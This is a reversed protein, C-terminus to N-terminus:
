PREEDWEDRMENIYQQVDIGAWIEKGLGHLELISHPKEESGDWEARMQNVYEQADTGDYLHAGVGRFDRLSRKKPPSSEETLMDLLAKILEKRENTSLNQAEQIMTQLSM